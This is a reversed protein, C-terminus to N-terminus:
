LTCYPMCHLHSNGHNNHMNYPLLHHCPFPSNKQLQSHCPFQTCSESGLLFPITNHYLPLPEGIVLNNRSFCLAYQPLHSYHHYLTPLKLFSLLVLPSETLNPLDNTIEFHIYSKYKVLATETSINCM